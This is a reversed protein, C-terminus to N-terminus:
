CEKRGSRNLYWGFMFLLLGAVALVPVPWNMQGTQPLKEDPPTTSEPPQTSPETTPPTEPQVSLKPTADVEAANVTVLFPTVPTYGEAAEEQVMLYLGYELDEFCLCGNEDIAGVTGDIGMAVAYDSLEQATKASTIDDLSIGCGEFDGTYEYAEAGAKAVRYITMTGGSVVEGRYSMTVSVSGTLTDAFVSVTLVCLMLVACLVAFVKRKM